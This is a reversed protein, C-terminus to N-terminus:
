QTPVAKLLETATARDAAVVMAVGSEGWRALAVIRGSINAFRVGGVPVSPSVTVLFEDADAPTDWAIRALLAADGRPGRIVEYRDGGWGAAAAAATEPRIGGMRLWLQLTYEGLVNTGAASWGSPPAPVGLDVTIPQERAVYKEPHLVQETSAPLRAFAADVAAIGGSVTTAQVFRLGRLYPFQLMDVLIPPGPPPTASGAAGLLALAGAPGFDQAVYQSQTYLADGEILASAATSADRNSRTAKSIAQLDFRQDQLAHQYEHAYTSLELVGPEANALVFLAKAKPDYLGLVESGLLQRYAEVIDFGKPLQGLAELLDGEARLDDLDDADDIARDIVARMGASTVFTRDVPRDVGRGRIRRVAAEARGLASATDASPVVTEIARPESSARPTSTPAATAVSTPPATAELTPVAAPTAPAGCAGLVVSACVLALAGTRIRFTLMRM